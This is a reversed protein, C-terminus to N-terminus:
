FRHSAQDGLGTGMDGTDGAHNSLWSRSHTSTTTLMGNAERERPETEKSRFLGGLLTCRKTDQLIHSHTWLHTRLYIWFGASCTVWIGEDRELCTVSGFCQQPDRLVVGFLSLNWTLTAHLNFSFAKTRPSFHTPFSPSKWPPWANCHCVPVSLARGLCCRQTNSPPCFFTDPIGSRESLPDVKWFPPWSGGVLHRITTWKRFIWTLIQM